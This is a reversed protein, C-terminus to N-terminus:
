IPVASNFMFDYQVLAARYKKSFFLQQEFAVSFIRLLAHLPLPISFVLAQM